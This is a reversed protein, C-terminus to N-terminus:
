LKQVQTQIDNQYHLYSLKLKDQIICIFMVILNLNTTLHPGYSLDIVPINICLNEWKSITFIRESYCKRCKIFALLKMLQMNM